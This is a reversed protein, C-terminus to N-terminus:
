KGDIEISYDSLMKYGDATILINNEIRVGAHQEPIYIGPEVTLTMGQSLILNSDPSFGQGPDHYRFGVHHGLAHNFRSGYGKRSIFERVKGDVTKAEVDPKILDLALLHAEKVVDYIKQQPAPIHAVRGTRTVDCWYGNVCVAMEIMVLDGKDIKKGTNRAYRDGYSSNIGSMIYAWAKAYRIAEKGTQSQVATEVACAVEVETKGQILNDYFTQIGIHGIKNALTIHATESTTKYLFLGLIDDTVDTYGGKALRKLKATFNLPMPIWEASIAPLSSRSSAEVFSIPKDEIGSEVLDAEIAKY